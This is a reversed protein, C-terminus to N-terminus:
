SGWDLERARACLVPWARLAAGYRQIEGALRRAAEAGVLASPWHELQIGDSQLLAKGNAQIIARLDAEWWIPAARAQDLAAQLRAIFQGQWYSLYEAHLQLLADPPSAALDLFNAAALELRPGPDVARAETARLALYDALFRHLSLRRPRLHVAMRAEGAATQRELALPLHLALAEPHLYRLVTGILLEPAGGVAATPPLLLRGDVGIPWNDGGHGLSAQDVARLLARAEVHRLYDERTAWFRQQADGQLLYLWLSHAGEAVGATGVHVTAIRDSAQRRAFDAYVRGRLSGVAREPRRLVAGLPQGLVQALEAPWDTVEQEGEAAFHVELRANGSLDIGPRAGPPRWARPGRDLDLWIWPRGQGLLVAWNWARARPHATPGLLERAVDAHEPASRILRQLRRDLERATLSELRRGQGQAWTRLAALAGGEADFCLLPAPNATPPPLALGRESSPRAGDEAYLVWAPAPPAVADVPARLRELVSAEAVLLGRQVLGDLVRDLAESQRALQPLRDLIRRRLEALPQFDGCVQLAEFVEATLVHRTREDSPTLVLEHASLAQVAAPRAAYCPATADPRTPDTM